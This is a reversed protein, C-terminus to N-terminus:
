AEYKISEMKEILDDAIIKAAATQWNYLTRTPVERDFWDLADLEAQSLGDLGNRRGYPRLGKVYPFYLSNYHRWAKGSKFENIDEPKLQNISETLLQKLEGARSLTHTELGKETLRQDIIPSHILPNTALKPLNGLHSLATRTQKIINDASLSWVSNPKSQVRNLLSQSPAFKPIADTIERLQSRELQLSPSGQFALRDFGNQIQRAFVTLLIATAVVGFLLLVMPFTIGTVWVIVAAVQLAFLTATAESELASRVFDPRLTEGQEFADLWGVAIGLLILDGCIAVFLWGAPILEFPALILGFGLAFFLTAVLALGAASASNRGNAGKLGNQRLNQIADRMHWLAGVWFFLPAILFAIQQQLLTGLPTPAYPGLATLALAIAYTILGGAAWILANQESNLWYRRILYVGLWLAVAFSILEVLLM